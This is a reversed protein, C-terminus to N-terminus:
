DRQGLWAGVAGGALAGALSSALDAVTDLYATVNLDDRYHWQYEVLEWAIEATTAAGLGLGAAIWWTQGLQRCALFAVAVGVVFAGVFHQPSGFWDPEM